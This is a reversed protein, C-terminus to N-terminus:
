PAHHVLMHRMISAVGRVSFKGAGGEPKKAFRDGPVPRLEAIRDGIVKADYRRAIKPNHRSRPIGLQAARDSLWGIRHGFKSRLEAVSHGHGRLFAKLYLEIAHYYLFLVPSLRHTAKVKAAYLAGASRWYTEAANFLGVENTREEAAIETDQSM